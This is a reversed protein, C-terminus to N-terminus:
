GTHPARQLAHAGRGLWAGPPFPRAFVLRRSRCLPDQRSTRDRLPGRHRRGLLSWRTCSARRVDHRDARPAMGRSLHCGAHREGTAFSRPWASRSRRGSPHEGAESCRLGMGGRVRRDRAAPHHTCRHRGRACPDLNWCRRAQPGHGAPWGPAPRPVGLIRSAEWGPCIGVGRTRRNDAESVFTRL